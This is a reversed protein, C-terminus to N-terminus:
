QERNAEMTLFTTTTVARDQAVLLLALVGAREVVVSAQRPGPGEDVRWPAIVKWGAGPLAQEYHATLDDLGREGDLYVVAEYPQDAVRLSLARRSSRPRPLAAPDRGPADQARPFMARLDVREEGHLAIFHTSEGRREAYTYAIPLATADGEPGGCAVFGHSEDGGRFANAQACSSEAAALLEGVSRPTRGRRFRLVAGNFLVREGLDATQSEPVRLMEAGVALMEKRAHASGSAGLQAVVAALLLGLAATRLPWGVLKRWPWRGRAIM